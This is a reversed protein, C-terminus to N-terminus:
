VKESCSYEGAENQVFVLVLGKQIGPRNDLEKHCIVVNFTSMKLHM